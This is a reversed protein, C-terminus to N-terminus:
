PRKETQLPIAIFVSTGHEQSSEISVTGNLLEARERMGLLGLHREGHNAAAIFGIGDDEVVARVMDGHREM